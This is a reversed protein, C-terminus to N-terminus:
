ALEAVHRADLLALGDRMEFDGAQALATGDDRDAAQVAISGDTRWQVTITIRQVGTGALPGFEHRREPAGECGEGLTIALCRQVDRNVGVGLQATAPLPTGKEFLTRLRAGGEELGVVGLAHPAVSLTHPFAGDRRVCEAAGRAYTDRSWFRRPLGALEPVRELAARLMGKGASAVVVVSAPTVRSGALTATALTQLAECAPQMQHALAAPTALITHLRSRRLLPWSLSERPDGAELAEWSEQWVREFDAAEGDGFAVSGPALAHLDEQWEAAGRQRMAIWGSAADVEEHLLEFADGVRVLRVRLADDDLSAVLHVGDRLGCAQALALDEKVLVVPGEVARSIALRLRAAPVAPLNSPVALALAAQQGNHWVRADWLAKRAACALFASSTLGRGAADRGVVEDRELAARRFRWPTCGDRGSAAAQLAAHGHLAGAADLAIVSPTEARQ